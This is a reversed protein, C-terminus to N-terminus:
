RGFLKTYVRMQIQDVFLKPVNGGTAKVTQFHMFSVDFPITGTGTAVARANSFSIGGGVRHETFDTNTEAMAPDIAITTGGTETSPGATFPAFTYEDMSKHRYVYQAALSIFDNFAWRPTAEVQLLTGLTRHATTARYAPLYGNTTGDPVRIMVDSGLSHDYRAVVSTWFHHGALLDGYARVGVAAEHTGASIDIL